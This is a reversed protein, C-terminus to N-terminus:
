NKIFSCGLKKEWDSPYHNGLYNSRGYDRQHMNYLSWIQNPSKKNSVLYLHWYCFTKYKKTSFEFCWYNSKNTRSNGGDRSSHSFYPPCCSWCFKFSESKIVHNYWLHPFVNNVTAFNDIIVNMLCRQARSAM